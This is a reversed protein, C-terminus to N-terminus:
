LGSFFRGLKGELDEDKQLHLFPLGCEDAGHKNELRDDIMLAKDPTVNLQQLVHQYIAAGDAKRHGIEHSYFRREPPVCAFFQPMDQELRTVHCINTDSVLAVTFFTGNMGHTVLHSLFDIRKTMPTFITSFADLAKEPAINVPLIADIQKMLLEQYQMVSMHGRGFAATQHRFDPDNLCAVLADYHIASDAGAERLLADPFNKWNIEAFVEGIDFLLHTTDISM